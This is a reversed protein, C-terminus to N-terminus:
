NKGVFNRLREKMILVNQPLFKEELLKEFNILKSKKEYKMSSFSTLILIFDYLNRTINESTKEDKFEDIHPIISKLMDIISKQLMSFFEIGINENFKLLKKYEESVKNNEFAKCMENYNKKAFEYANELSQRTSKFYVDEKFNYFAQWKSKKALNLCVKKNLILNYFISIHLYNYYTLTIIVNSFIGFTFLSHFESFNSLCKNIFLSKNREFYMMEMIKRAYLRKQEIKFVDQMELPIKEDGIIEKPFRLFIKKPTAILPKNFKMYPHNLIQELSFRLNEQLKLMGKILDKGDEDIYVESTFIKDISKENLKKEYLKILQEYIAKSKLQDEKSEFCPLRKYYMFFLTVGLSFIDAKVTYAQGKLMQPNIYYKAGKFTNAVLEGDQLERCEGFDIFKLVDESFMVNNPKIDRHMIQNSHIVGLALVIEKFLKRIELDSNNNECIYNYLNGRNCYELILYKTTIIKNKKSNINHDEEIETIVDYVKAINENEKLTHLANYELDSVQNEISKIAVMQYDSNKELKILGYFVKGFTGKGIENSFLIIKTNPDRSALERYSNRIM